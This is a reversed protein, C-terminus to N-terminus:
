EMVEPEVHLMGDLITTAVGGASTVTLEYKYVRRTLARTQAPSLALTIEGDAAVVSVETDADTYETATDDGFGRGIVWSVSYGTLDIATSGDDELWTVVRSFTDGQRAYLDFPTSASESM